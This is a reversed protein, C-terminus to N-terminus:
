ASFYFVGDQKIKKIRGQNELYILHGLVESLAMYSNIEDLDPGFHIKSIEFPTLSKNKIINIIEDLRNRHHEKISIIRQHPDHIIEQHASFIIRPNLKDIKDLSRLYHDLINEFNHDKYKEQLVPSIVFNGIHPTIRSLIHDGAFLYRNKADYVCIHGFSHGPTWIIELDNLVKDGDHVIIDPAQYQLYKPWTLFFKIIKQGQEASIGYQIMMDAIKGIEEEYEYFLNEDMEWKFIDHTIDHMVIKLGPNVKKLTKVLGIHDVHMHSIFCYDIDRVSLNLEKLASFLAKKWNGLDIGADILIRKGEFEFLYLSVFKVAFPVEIKIQYIEEIKNIEYRPTPM